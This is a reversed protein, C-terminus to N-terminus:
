VEVFVVAENPGEERTGVADGVCAVVAEVAAWIVMMRMTDAAFLPEWALAEEPRTSDVVVAVVV